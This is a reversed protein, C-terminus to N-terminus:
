GRCFIALTGYMSVAGSLVYLGMFVLTMLISTGGKERLLEASSQPFLRKIEASKKVAHRYYLYNAFLGLGVAFFGSVISTLNYVANFAGTDLNIEAFRRFQETLAPFCTVFMQYFNRDKLYTQLAVATSPLGLLTRIVLALIAAAPMKRNAFYFEPFLLATFNFSMKLHGMKMLKFKPLYYHTNSGVFDGLDRTTVGEEYEEDPNFGCLPDSFNILYPNMDETFQQG